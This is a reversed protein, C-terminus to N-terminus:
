PMVEIIQRVIDVVAQLQEWNIAVKGFNNNVQQITFKKTAKDITVEVLNSNFLLVVKDNIEFKDYNM